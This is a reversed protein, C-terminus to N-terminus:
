RAPVREAELAARERQLLRISAFIVVSFLVLLLVSAAAAYSVKNFVWANRWLFISLTETANGPGGQTLLMPIDFIKLAEMSRVVLAIMIVPKLLPLQVYRFVQWRSAGMVQAARIPEPPLASLGSVFILFTLPTWQWIDALVVAVQAARYESMWRIRVEQGTLRSLAHNLPGTDILLMSFDYGVVVPIIMMPILFVTLYFRRGRFSKYTLLALGFGLLLEATVASAAFTFTRVISFLFVEDTLADVFNSLGGFPAATWFGLTLRWRLLSIYITLAFPVALLALLLLQVPILPIWRFVREQELWAGVTLRRSRTSAAAVGPPAAATDPLRTM